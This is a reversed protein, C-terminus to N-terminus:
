PAGSIYLAGGQLLWGKSTVFQGKNPLHSNYLLKMYLLDASLSILFTPTRLTLVVLAFKSPEFVKPVMYLQELCPYNSGNLIFYPVLDPLLNRYNVSKKKRNEVCYDYKLTSMLIAEILRNWHICVVYFKM